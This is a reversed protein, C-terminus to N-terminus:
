LINKDKSMKLIDETVKVNMNSYYDWIASKYGSVHQFAHFVIPDLYAGRKEVKKCLTSHKIEVWKRFHEVKLRYQNKTNSCKRGATIEIALQDNGEEVIINDIEEVM